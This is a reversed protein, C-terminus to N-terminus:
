ATSADCEDLSARSAPAPDYRLSQHRHTPWALALMRCKKVGSGVKKIVELTQWPTQQMSLNVLADMRLEGLAGMGQAQVEGSGQGESPLIVVSRRKSKDADRKLV